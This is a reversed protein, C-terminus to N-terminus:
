LGEPKETVAARLRYTGRRGEPESIRVYFVRGRGPSVELAAAGPESSKQVTRALLATKGDVDFAELLTSVGYRPSLTEVLVALSGKPAAVSVWDVDGAPFFTRSQESGDAVIERARTWSDDPEFEDPGLLALAAHLRDELWQRSIEAAIRVNDWVVRGTGDPRRSSPLQSRLAINGEPRVAGSPLRAQGSFRFPVGEPDAAALEARLETAALEISAALRLGLVPRGQASFEASSWPVERSKGAERLRLSCLGTAGEVLLECGDGSRDTALQVVAVGSLIELELAVSVPIGFALRTRAEGLLRGEGRVIGTNARSGPISLNWDELQPYLEADSVPRGEQKPLPEFDYFVEVRVDDLRRVKGAILDEYPIRRPLIPIDSPVEIAASRPGEPRYARLVLWISVAAAALMALVTLTEKLSSVALGPRKKSRQTDTRLDSNRM